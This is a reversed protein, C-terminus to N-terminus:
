FAVYIFPKSPLGMRYLAYHLVVAVLVGLLLSVGGALMNAVRPSLDKTWKAWLDNM